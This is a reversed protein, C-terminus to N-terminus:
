NEKDLIFKIQMALHRNTIGIAKCNETNLIQDLTFYEMKHLPIKRNVSIYCMEEYLNNSATDCVILLYIENKTSKINDLGYIVGNAKQALGIYRGIEMEM